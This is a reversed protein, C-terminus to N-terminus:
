WDRERLLPTTQVLLGHPRAIIEATSIARQLDSSVVADISSDAMQRSVEEAQAIGTTNLQGQTQGQMIRNQNDFTEGHRVLYLTTKTM